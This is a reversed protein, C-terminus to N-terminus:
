AAARRYFGAKALETAGVYALTIALLVGFTLFDFFSSLVCAELGQAAARTM